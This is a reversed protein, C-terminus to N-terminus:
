FFSEFHAATSVQYGVLIQPWRCAQAKLEESKKWTLAKAHRFVLMEETIDLASLFAKKSSSRGGVILKANLVNLNPTSQPRSSSSTQPAKVIRPSYWDNHMMQAPTHVFQASKGRPLMSYGNSKVGVGPINDNGPSSAPSAPPATTTRPPYNEATSVFTQVSGDSCISGFRMYRTTTIKEEPVHMVSCDSRTYIDSKLEENHACM